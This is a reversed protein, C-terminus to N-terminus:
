SLNYNSDYKIKIPCVVLEHRVDAYTPTDM